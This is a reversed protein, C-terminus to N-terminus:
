PAPTTPASAPAPTPTPTPAPAPAAARAAGEQRVREVERKLAGARDDKKLYEYVKICEELADAADEPDADPSKDWIALLRKLLAEAEDARGQGIRNAALNGLALMLRPSEPGAVKELIALAREYAPEAKAFEGRKRYANALNNLSAATNFSEPGFAAEAIALARTHFAEAEDHRGLEDAITGLLSLVMGLEPRRRGGGADEYIKLARRALLDATNQQGQQQRTLALEYLFQAVRTSAPGYLRTVTQRARDFYAAAEDYKKQARCLAGLRGLLAVIDPHNAGLDPESLRLTRVLAAEADAYQRRVELAQGLWSLAAAQRPRQKTQEAAALASRFAQEAEAPAGKRLAEVGAAM